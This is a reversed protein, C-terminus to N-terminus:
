DRPGVPFMAECRESWDVTVDRQLPRLRPGVSGSSVISGKSDLFRLSDFIFCRIFAYFRGPAAPLTISKGRM